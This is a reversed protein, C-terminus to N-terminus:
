NRESKGYDVEVSLSYKFIKFAISLCKKHHYSIQIQIPNITFNIERQFMTHNESDTTNIDLITFRISDNGWNIKEKIKPLHISYM